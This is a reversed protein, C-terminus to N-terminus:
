IRLDRTYYIPNKELDRKMYICRKEYKRLAFIYADRKM